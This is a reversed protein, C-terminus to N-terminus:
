AASHCEISQTGGMSNLYNVTTTNVLYINIHVSKMRGYFAKLGFFVAMLELCNIHNKLEAETRRSGTKLHGHICGVRTHLTHLTIDIKVNPTCLPCDAKEINDCWWQLEAFSNKKIAMSQYVALLGLASSQSLSM